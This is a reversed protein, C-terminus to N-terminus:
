KNTRKKDDESTQGIVCIYVTVFICVVRACVCVGVAGMAGVAGEM